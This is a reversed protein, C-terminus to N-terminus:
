HHLPFIHSLPIRAPDKGLALSTCHGIAGAQTEQKIKSIFDSGVKPYSKKLYESNRTYVHEVQIHMFVHGINIM